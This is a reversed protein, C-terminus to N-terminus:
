LVKTFNERAYVQAQKELIIAKNMRGCEPMGKWTFEKESYIFSKFSFVRDSDHCMM